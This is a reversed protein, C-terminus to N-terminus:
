GTKIIVEVNKANKPTINNLIRGIKDTEVAICGRSNGPGEGHHVFRNNVVRGNVKANAIFISDVRYEDMKTRSCEPYTGDDIRSVDWWCTASIPGGTGEYTLTGEKKGAPFSITLKFACM